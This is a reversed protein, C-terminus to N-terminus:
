RDIEEMSWLKAVVRASVPSRELSSLPTCRPCCWRVGHLKWDLNLADVSAERYADVVAQLSNDTPGSQPNANEWSCCRLKGSANQFSCHIEVHFAGLHRAIWDVRARDEDSM